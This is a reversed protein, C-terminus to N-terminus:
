DLHLKSALVNLRLAHPIPLISRCQRWITVSTFSSARVVVIEIMETYMTAVIKSDDIKDSLKTESLCIIDPITSAGNIHRLYDLKAYSGSNNGMAKHCCGLSSRANFSVIMFSFVNDYSIFPWAWVDNKIIDANDADNAETPSLSALTRNSPSQSADAVMSQPVLQFIYYNRQVTVIM